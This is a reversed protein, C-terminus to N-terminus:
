RTPNPGRVQHGTQISGASPWSAFRTPRGDLRQARVEGTKPNRKRRCPRRALSTLAPAIQHRLPVHDITVVNDHDPRALRAERHASNQTIATALM